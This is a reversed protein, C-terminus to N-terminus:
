CLGIGSVRRRTGFAYGLRAYVLRYTARDGSIPTHHLKLGLFTIPWITQTRTGWLCVKDCRDSPKHPFANLQDLLIVVYLDYLYAAVLSAHPINRLGYLSGLLDRLYKQDIKAVIWRRKETTRTKM